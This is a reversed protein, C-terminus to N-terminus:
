TGGDDGADVGGDGPNPVPPPAACAKACTPGTLVPGAAAAALGGPAGLEATCMMGVCADAMAKDALKAACKTVACGIVKWCNENCGAIATSAAKCACDICGASLGIVKSATTTSTVCQAPSVSGGAGGSGGKAGGAGGKGGTGAKPTGADTPSDDDDDGCAAVSGCLALVVFGRGLFTWLARTM